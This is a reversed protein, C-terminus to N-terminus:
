QPFKLDPKNTYQLIMMTTKQFAAIQKELDSLQDSGQFATIKKIEGMLQIARMFNSAALRILWNM